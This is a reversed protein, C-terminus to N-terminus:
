REIGKLRDAVLTAYGSIDHWSDHYNPDGNVIRAIKHVIMELAEKQDAELQGWSPAMQLHDKLDQTTRAHDVFKGYRSGRETLTDEISSGEEKGATKLCGDSYIYFDDEVDKDEELDCERMESCIGCHVKKDPQGVEDVIDKLLSDALENFYKEWEKIKQEKEKKL